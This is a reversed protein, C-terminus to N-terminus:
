SESSPVGAAGRDEAVAHLNVHGYNPEEEEQSMYMYM